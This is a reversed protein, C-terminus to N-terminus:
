PKTIEPAETLLVNIHYSGIRKFNLRLAVCQNDEANQTQNQRLPLSTLKRHCAMESSTRSPSVARPKQIERM